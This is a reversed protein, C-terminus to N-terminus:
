GISDKLVEPPIHTWWSGQRYENEIYETLAKGFIGKARGSKAVFYRPLSHEERWEPHLEYAAHVAEVTWSRAHQRQRSNLFHPRNIHDLARESAKDLREQATLTARFEITDM